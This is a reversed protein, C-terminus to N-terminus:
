SISGFPFFRDRIIASVVVKSSVNLAKIYAESVAGCLMEAV